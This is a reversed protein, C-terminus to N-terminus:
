LFFSTVQLLFPPCRLPPSSPPAKAAEQVPNEAGRSKLVNQIQDNGIVIKVQCHPHDWSEMQKLKKRCDDHIM